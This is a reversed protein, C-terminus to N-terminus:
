PGRFPAGGACFTRSHCPAASRTPEHVLLLPLAWRPQPRTRGGRSEGAGQFGSPIGQEQPWPRWAAPGGHVAPSQDGGGRVAWHAHPCVSGKFRVRRLSATLPAEPSAHAAPRMGRDQGPVRRASSWTGSPLPSCARLLEGTMELGVLPEKRPRRPPPPPLSDESVGAGASISPPRAPLAPSM